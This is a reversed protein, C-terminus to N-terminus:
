RPVPITKRGAIAVAYRDRLERPGLAGAADAVAASDTGTVLWTPPDEGARVAAVLGASALKRRPAGKSDL